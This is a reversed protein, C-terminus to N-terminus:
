SVVYVSYYINTDQKPNHLLIFSTILNNILTYEQQRIGTENFMILTPLNPSLTDIIKSLLDNLENSIDNRNIITNNEDAWIIDINHEEIPQANITIIRPEVDTKIRISIFQMAEEAATKWGALDNLENSLNIRENDWDNLAELRDRTQGLIINTENLERDINMRMEESDELRVRYDIIEGANIILALFLLILIVDLLPTLDFSSFKRKIM